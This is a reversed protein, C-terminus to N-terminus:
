FNLPEFVRKGGSLEMWRERTLQTITEDRYAGRKWYAAKMIGVIEYGARLQVKRCGENLGIFASHLYRLGLVEFAYYARVMAAETGYGMGWVSKEGILTGSEAFGHRTDISHLGSNGIYQGEMTEIAFVISKENPLSANEYWERQGVLTVPIDGAILRETIDPDNIWRYGIAMHKEIEIPVLRIRNGEWGFKDM